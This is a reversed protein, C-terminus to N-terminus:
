WLYLVSTVRGNETHIYVRSPYARYKRRVIKKQELDFEPIDTIVDYTKFSGHDSFLGYEFLEKIMAIPADIIINGNLAADVYKKGYKACYADYIPKKQAAIEEAQRAEEEKQRAEERAKYENAYKWM